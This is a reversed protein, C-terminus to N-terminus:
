SVTSPNEGVADLRRKAEAYTDEPLGGGQAVSVNETLHDPNLTGAIVTHVNPHALTYRLM